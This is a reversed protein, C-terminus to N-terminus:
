TVYRSKRFWAPVPRSAGQRVLRKAQALAPRPDDLAFVGDTYPPLQFGNRTGSMFTIAWKRGERTMRADPPELGCLDLYAIHTLDVGCSGSLGHWQWLRPNVEILKYEGTRPDLKFEVQSLGHFGLQHLLRLGDDVVAGVWRSEGVRCSGMHERTQRLKRGCFIGLPRGNRAVYSGLTYLGDDGGPIFEQVMPQYGEASAYAEELQDPRDCRFGQRRHARKFMIPDSPKVFVPYGLERGAALAEDASQPHRTEPVPVGCAIAQEIQHRKQQIRQLTDWGPSSLLFMGHLESQHRALANLHEDHTPFVPAPADLRGGLDLMAQIFGPEDAVPEPALVPTAYRSKFGLAYPRHDVAMVRIGHRGLARIAGLGNVWAVEVV